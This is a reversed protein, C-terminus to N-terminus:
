VGSHSLRMKCLAFFLLLFVFFSSMLIFFMYTLLWPSSPKEATMEFPKGYTAPVAKLNHGLPDEAVVKVTQTM